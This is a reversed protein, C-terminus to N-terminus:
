KELNFFVEKLFDSFIDEESYDILVELSVLFKLFNNRVEEIFIKLEGKFQRVLVNLVSEDECFIFQVSVEIESLDM